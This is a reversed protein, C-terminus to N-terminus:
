AGKRGSKMDVGLVKNSVGYDCIQYNNAYWCLSPSLHRHANESKLLKVEEIMIFYERLLVRSLRSDSRKNRPIKSLDLPDYTRNLWKPINVQHSKCCFGEQRRVDILLRILTRVLFVDRLRSLTAGSAARGRTIRSLEFLWM